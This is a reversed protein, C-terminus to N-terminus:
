RKRRFRLVILEALWCLMTVLILLSLIHMCLPYNETEDRVYGLLPGFTLISIGKFVMNLGVAAPVKEDVCAESVCLNINVVVSGRSFGCLACIVCLAVLDSTMAIASRLVALFIAGVLFTYRAKAQMKDTVPPVTLRSVFDGGAMFSMCLATQALTLRVGNHLYFPLLMNFNVNTTYVAATGITVNLFVPDKLLDLDMFAVFRQLLTRRKPEPRTEQAEEEGAEEVTTTLQPRKREDIEIDIVDGTSSSALSVASANRRPGQRKPSLLGDKKDPEREGEKKDGDNNNNGNAKLPELEQPVPQREAHWELPHFLLAGIFGHMTLGGIVLVAGSFSFTELLLRVVHPMAMQGANTGALSLGVARGRAKRFYTKVALFNSPTVLGLGLGAIISYTVIMHWLSNAFSTLILGTSVLVGGAIAVQRMTYKKLLPGTFLGSFNTVASMINMILAASTTEHGMSTLKDGFLLSFVSILSQCTMHSLFVGLVVIWGWGGDPPVLEYQPTSSATM